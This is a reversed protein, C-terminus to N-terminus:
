NEQLGNIEAIGACGFFGEDFVDDTFKDEGIYFVLKGKETKSSAFTMPSEKIRGSNCGWGCGEGFSKAFMPYEIIRGKERMM